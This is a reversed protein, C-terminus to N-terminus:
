KVLFFYTNFIGKLFLDINKKIKNRGEESEFDIGGINGNMRKRKTQAKRDMQYFPRETMTVLNRVCTVVPSM